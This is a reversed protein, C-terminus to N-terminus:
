KRFGGTSFRNYITKYDSVDLLGRLKLFAFLVVCSVCFTIFLGIVIKLFALFILYLVEM